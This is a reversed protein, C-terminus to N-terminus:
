TTAVNVLPEYFQSVVLYTFLAKTNYPDLTAADSSIALRFIQSLADRAAAGTRLFALAACLLPSPRTM